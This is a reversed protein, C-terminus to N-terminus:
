EQRLVDLAEAIVAGKSQGTDLRRWRIDGVDYLLQLRVVAASADSVNRRRRTVREEMVGPEAELWLGRFPVGLDAAVREIAQREDPDAFVADAIVAQGAAIARRCEDLVAAYTRETMERSYGADGLRAELPVGALRKRTSDTRVVRAGPPPGLHPSLERALRSKGTGSLGGIAILRPAPPALYDLALDLYRTADDALRAAEGADSLTKAAAAQVHSRIAARLSLFLPLAALGAADGTNDLYRNLLTSALSRLRRHDLDMVLFALDYLVDVVALETSFEIADFLTAQGGHLVINRLHLDGHCHRVFGNRRREELLDERAALAQRSAETLARTRAADLIGGGSEAFCETNSDIVRAVLARGGGDPRREAEAHFRAVTDALDEMAFRDLMGKQALRDFLTEEDFRQMEVLWDVAEGRGGLHLAGAADRTVAAVGLYIEPATRRNIRIEAHCFRRRRDRTSFDLYPFRVARKLKYARDGCLFVISIHTEVRDVRGDPRGYAEPRSLFEIVEGQDEVIM